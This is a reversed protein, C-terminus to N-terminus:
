ALETQSPQTAPWTPWIVEPEWHRSGHTVERTVVREGPCVFVTWEGYTCGDQRVPDLCSSRTHESELQRLGQCLMGNSIQHDGTGAAM